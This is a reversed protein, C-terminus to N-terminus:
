LHNVEKERFDDFLKIALDINTLIFFIDWLDTMKISKNLQVFSEAIDNINGASFELDYLSTLLLKDGKNKSKHEEEHCINCLTILVSDKYEWVKKDKIYYKHHVHLTKDTTDCRCCCFGDRELIKLRKKQWRPDKFQESYTSM